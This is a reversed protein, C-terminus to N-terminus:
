RLSEPIDDDDVKNGKEDAPESEKDDEPAKDSKRSPALGLMGKKSAELFVTTVLERRADEPPRVDEPMNPLIINSVLDACSIYLNTIDIMTAQFGKSEVKESGTSGGDESSDNKDQIKMGASKPVSISKGYKEDEKITPCSRDKEGEWVLLSKGKADRYDVAERNWLTVGLEEDSGAQKIKLSQLTWKKDGSGGSKRDYVKVITGRFAQVKDGDGLNEMEKATVM